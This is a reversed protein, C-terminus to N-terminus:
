LTMLFLFVVVKVSETLFILKMLTKYFIIDGEMNSLDGLLFLFKEELSCEACMMHLFRRFNKFKKASIMIIQNLCILINM